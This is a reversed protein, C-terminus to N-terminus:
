AGRAWTCTTFGRFSIESPPRDWGSEITGYAGGGKTHLYASRPANWVYSLYSCDEAVRNM